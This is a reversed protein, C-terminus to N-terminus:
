AADLIAPVEHRFRDYDINGATGGQNVDVTLLAACLASTTPLNAALTNKLVGDVYCFARDAPTDTFEIRVEFWTGSTVKAFNSGNNRTGDYSVFRWNSSDVREMWIGHRNFGLGGNVFQESRPGDRLGFLFPSDAALKIRATFVIPKTSRDFRYRALGYLNAYRGSSSGLTSIRASTYDPKAANWITGNRDTGDYGQYMWGRRHNVIWTGSWGAASYGSPLTNGMVAGHSAQFSFGSMDDDLFHEHTVLHNEVISTRANLNTFDDKMKRYFDQGLGAKFLTEADTFELFAPIAM